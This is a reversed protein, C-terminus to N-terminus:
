VSSSRACNACHSSRIRRSNWGIGQDNPGKSYFPDAFIKAAAKGVTLPDPIRGGFKSIAAWAAVFFALGVCCAIVDVLWEPARARRYGTEFKAKAADAKAGLIAASPHPPSTKIPVVAKGIGTRLAVATM